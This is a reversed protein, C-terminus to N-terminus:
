DLLDSLEERLRRLVRSKALYVANTSMALEEAVEAPSQDDIVMRWFAQWTNTKFEHQLLELARRYIEVTSTTPPSENSLLDRSPVAEWQMRATSGGIAHPEKATGRYFDAIKSRTLTWLWGRFTGGVQDRRFGEIRRAVARFVEQGVDSADAPQLGKRRCWEYVVPGFIHIFRRWADPHNIRLGRLMTSGLVSSGGANLEVSSETVAARRIPPSEAMFRVFGM